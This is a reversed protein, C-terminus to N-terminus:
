AVFRVCIRVHEGTKIVRNISKSSSLKDTFKVKPGTVPLDLHLFGVLLLSSERYAIQAKVLTIAHTQAQAVSRGSKLPKHLLAHPVLVESFTEDEDVVNKDERFGEVLM